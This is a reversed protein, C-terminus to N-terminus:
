TSASDSRGSSGRSPVEQSASWVFHTSRSRTAVRRSWGPSRASQGRSSAVSSSRSPLVAHAALRVPRDPAVRRRQERRVQVEVALLRDVLHRRQRGLLLVGTPHRRHPRRELQEVVERVHLLAPEHPAEQRFRHGLREAVLDVAHPADRRVPTDVLDDRHQPRRPLPGPRHERRVREVGDGDTPPRNLASGGVSDHIQKWTSWSYARCTPWRSTATSSAPPGVPSHAAVAEPPDVAVGLSRVFSRLATLDFPDIPPYTAPDVQVVVRRLGDEGLGAILIEVAAQARPEETLDAFAPHYM